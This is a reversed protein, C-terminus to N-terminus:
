RAAPKPFMEVWSKFWCALLMIKAHKIMSGANVRMEADFLANRVPASIPPTLMLFFVITLQDWLAHMLSVGSIEYRTVPMRFQM